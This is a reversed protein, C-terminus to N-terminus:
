LCSSWEGCDYMVQNLPPHRHQAQCGPVPQAAEALLMGWRISHPCRSNGAYSLGTEWRVRSRSDLDRRFSVHRHRHDGTESGGSYHSGERNMSRKYAIQKVHRVPRAQREGVWPATTMYSTRPKVLGHYHAYYHETGPRSLIIRGRM